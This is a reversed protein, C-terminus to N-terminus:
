VGVSEQLLAVVRGLYGTNSGLNSAPVERVRLLIAVWEVTVNPKSIISKYTPSNFMLALYTHLYSIPCKSFTKKVPARM